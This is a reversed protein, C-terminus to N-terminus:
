FFSKISVIGERTNQEDLMNFIDRAVDKSSCYINIGGECNCDFLTIKHYEGTSSYEHVEQFKVSM